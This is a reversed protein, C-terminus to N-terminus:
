FLTPIVFGAFIMACLGALGAADSVAEVPAKTLFDRAQRMATM